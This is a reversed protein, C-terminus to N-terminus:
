FTVSFLGTFLPCTHRSMCYTCPCLTESWRQKTSTSHVLSLNLLVIFPIDPHTSLRGVLVDHLMVAVSSSATSSILVIAATVMSPTDTGPYEGTVVGVLVGM